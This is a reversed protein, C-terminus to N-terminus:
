LIAWEVNWCILEFAYDATGDPAIFMEGSGGDLLDSVFAPVAFVVDVAANM